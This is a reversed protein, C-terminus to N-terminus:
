ERGDAEGGEGARRTRAVVIVAKVVRTRDFWEFLRGALKFGGIGIGYQSLAMEQRALYGSVGAFVHDSVERIEIGEEDYGCDVLQARYQAETVFTRLPCNMVLSVLRVLFTDRRSAEDGLLLDFAMLNADLLGAALRFAPRRSPSFHYLCDLALMWRQQSFSRGALEDVSARIVGSWTEPRAADACFLKFSAPTLRTSAREGHSESESESEGAGDLRLRRDLARQATQVQLADLSLGVYQFRSRYQAQLMDALALTQDGCGFGLDLVAVPATASHGPSPTRSDDDRVLLGAADVIRELLARTAQNFHVIPKGDHTTWFGLNMWMSPFPTRINLKWHGLSYPNCSRLFVLAGVSLLALVIAGGTAIGLVFDRASFDRTM